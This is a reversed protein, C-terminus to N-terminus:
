TQAFEIYEPRRGGLQRAWGDAEDSESGNERRNYGPRAARFNIFSLGEPGPNFTYMTDAHIALATGPGFLRNGLQAQGGTIFIIEDESHCHAGRNTNAPTVFAPTFESEHLWIECTPCASDFHMAGNVGAIMEGIRLVREVPLLHIHGGDRPTEPLGAAAFTLVQAGKDGGTISLGVGHEVVMSSGAAMRRAGADVAGTWVYVLCDVARPGISLVDGPAIRHCHLHLPDTPGVFYSETHAQGSLGEPMAAPITKGSTVISVKAM